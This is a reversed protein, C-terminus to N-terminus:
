VSTAIRIADSEFTHPQTKDHIHILYHWVRIGAEVLCLLGHSMIVWEYHTATHQLTNCHTATHQLTNCHTASVLPRTVHPSMWVNSAVENVYMVLSLWMCKFRVGYTNGSRNLVRPLTVYHSMRMRSMAWECIHCPESLWTVNSMRMGKFGVGYEQPVVPRIFGYSMWVHSVVWECVHGSEVVCREFWPVKPTISTVM